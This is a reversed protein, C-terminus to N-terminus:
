RPSNKEIENLLRLTEAAEEPDVKEIAFGAHLMVYDGAKVDEMFLLSATYEVEEISVRATPGDVHVVKAPIALCMGNGEKQSCRGNTRSCDRRRENSSCFAFIGRYNKSRMISEVGEFLYKNQFVGGSLVVKRIGEKKCIESVTEFIILILTDHFKMAIDSVEEGRKLDSVIGKIIDEVHITEGMHCSYRGPLATGSKLTQQHFSRGSPIMSELIMPGEAPFAAVQCLGLISSVADFLRGAGSTLPCNINRDIMRIIMEIKDHGIQQLLPLGFDPFDRGYLKYLYSVAMRWPEENALDGGPLPIYGFHTIREFETLDCVMFESGWINGDTGLGTGDLAVGVVREDLQNEAMCSAIHAHHHQVGVLPLSQYKAATRTSIYDPHLDVALLSPKVRFLRIFQELTQEYFEATEIGKLDGIHQSMFAKRGKGVCFCNTLEAGFAVIGEMNLKTQVPAPVYGRSRRFVREKGGMVRVVSDDTRNYIDRNHLIVADTCDIFHNLSEDNGTLIPEDSFNGSTLVIAPTHLFRFLQYHFPMYPFMVGLLSLGSCVNDAPKDAAQIGIEPTKAALLVIPRRWSSLSIEEERSITAFQRIAEMDRFMTAFPKAERNKLSRLRDVAGANFADCALHLGGMGKIAVIGGQDILRAVKDLITRIDHLVPHHERHMEYGPGCHNCAIPQAHFRRDSINEYEKRCDSCMPFSRMTTKERDYPLDKVITFRPGCNTCNVFPYDLRNGDLAIDDLCERCVAIDPSIETINGSVDLSKLIRFGLYEKLKLEKVSIEQVLAAPPAEEKISAIFLRAKEEEGTIRIRVNENTNQVWGTISFKMAMRYIFPRFGVGQVLGRVKVRFTKRSLAM